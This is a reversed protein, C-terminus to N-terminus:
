RTKDYLDTMKKLIGGLYKFDSEAAAIFRPRLAYAKELVEPDSDPLVLIVRLEGLIDGLYILEMLESRSYACLVAASVDLMPQHLRESLESILSYIEIPHGPVATKIIELLSVGSENEGSLYFIVGM